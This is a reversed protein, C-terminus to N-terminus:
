MFIFNNIQIELFYVSNYHIGHLWNNFNTHIGMSLYHIDFINTSLSRHLSLIIYQWLCATRSVTVYIIRTNLGITIPTKLSIAILKHFLIKSFTEYLILCYAAIYICSNFHIFYLHTICIICVCHCLSSNENSPPHPIYEKNRLYIM